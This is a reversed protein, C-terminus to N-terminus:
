SEGAAAIGTAAWEHRRLEMLLLDDSRDPQRPTVPLLGRTRFGCREYCKRARRNSRAVRLYIRELALQEFAVPLFLRLAATGCGQGRYREEGILVCLEASKARWAMNVLEVYGVIGSDSEEVVMAYRRGRILEQRYNAYVAMSSFTKGFQIEISPDSEWALLRDFDHEAVPRLVVARAVFHIGGQLPASM